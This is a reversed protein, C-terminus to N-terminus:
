GVPMQRNTMKRGIAAREQGGGSFIAAGMDMLVQLNEADDKSKDSWSSLFKIGNEDCAAKITERARDM